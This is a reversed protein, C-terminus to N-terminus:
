RAGAAAPEKTQPRHGNQVLDAECHSLVQKVRPLGRESWPLGDWAATRGAYEGEAVELRIGWRPSGDRTVGERVDAIRCLYIGEPVSIFSEVDDVLSFDVQM